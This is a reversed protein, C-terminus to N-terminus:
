RKNEKKCINNYFELDERKVHPKASPNGTLGFVDAYSKYQEMFASIKTQFESSNQTEIGIVRGIAKDLNSITKGKKQKAM